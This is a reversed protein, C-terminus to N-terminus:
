KAKSFKRELEVFLVQAVARKASSSGSAVEVKVGASSTLPTLFVGVETTNVQGPVGMFVVQGQAEDKSFVAYKKEKGADLIAALCDNEACQYSQYVSQSRANELERTSFGVINRPADTLSACGCLALLVGATWAQRMIRERKFNYVGSFAVRFLIRKLTRKKKELSGFVKGQPYFTKPLLSSFVSLSLNSSEIDKRIYRNELGDREVM